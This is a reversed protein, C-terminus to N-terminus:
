VVGAGGDNLLRGALQEGLGIGAALTTERRLLRLRVRLRGLLLM